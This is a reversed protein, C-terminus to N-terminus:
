LNLEKLFENSDVLMKKMHPFSRLHLGDKRGRQYTEIDEANMRSWKAVVTYVFFDLWCLRFHEIFDQWSYDKVGCGILTEYYVRLLREQSDLLDPHISTAIYYAVDLAAPGMGFWQWDIAYVKGEGKKSHDVFLNSIKFDGHVLTKRPIAEFRDNLIALKNYLKPGLEKLEQDMELEKSFHEVTREWSYGFQNKDAETKTGTWYGGINWYKTGKPVVPTGWHSAHFTALQSLTVLSDTESFGLPQGDELHSIDEMVMCFQNNFSDEFNFYVQPLHLGSITEGLYRYFRSEIEYSNLYMVEKDSANMAKRLSLMTKEKLTKEWALTKLVISPVPVSEPISYRLSFRTVHFHCGGTLLKPVFGEIKNKSSIIGEKKLLDEIWESTVSNSHIPEKTKWYRKKLYILGISIGIVVIFSISSNFSSSDKLQNSDEGGM